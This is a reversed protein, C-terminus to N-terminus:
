KGLEILRYGVSLQFVQNRIEGEAGDLDNVDSLGLNYRADFTLGFPLDIGAGLGLSVDTGKYADKLDDVGYLAELEDGEASTVFGFQPGAQLNLGGILYLKLLVPINVYSFNSELNGLDTQFESGQQSFIIEPQIALKSIKITAFAGGHFGTRSETDFGALDSDLNAFNLGGKIGLRLGAQASASGIFAISCILILVVKKM